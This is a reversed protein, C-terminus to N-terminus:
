DLHLTKSNIFISKRALFKLLYIENRLYKEEQTVPLIKKHIESAKNHVIRCRIDYIRSATKAIIGNFDSLSLKEDSLKNSKKDTYYEKLFDMSNIYEIIEEGTTINRLVNSLQEREDGISDANKATIVNLLKIMDTESDISFNPDRFLNKIRNKAEITSYIPFYYELVQYFAFFAFIPSEINKQAFWYLSLPTKDYEYNLKIERKEAKPQLIRRRRLSRETRSMRGPALTITLGYIVDLQFFLANSLKELYNKAKEETEVSINEIKLTNRFRSTRESIDLHRGEKYASIFAFEKSAYGITIKIEENAFLLIEAPEIKGLENTIEEIVQFDSPIRGLLWRSPGDIRSDQIECEIRKLEKSWVAEYDSVGRYKMFDITMIADLNDDEYVRITECNRAIPFDFSICKFETGEYDTENALKPNFNHEELFTKFQEITHKNKAEPM